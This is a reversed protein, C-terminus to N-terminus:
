TEEGTLPAFWAQAFRGWRDRGVVVLLRFLNGALALTGALLLLNALTALGLFPLNKRVVNL